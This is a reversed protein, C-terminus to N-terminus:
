CAYSDGMNGSHNMSIVPTFVIVSRVLSTENM